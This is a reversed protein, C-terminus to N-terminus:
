ILAPNLITTSESFPTWPVKFGRSKLEYVVFVFGDYAVVGAANYM